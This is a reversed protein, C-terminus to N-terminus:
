LRVCTGLVRPASNYNVKWGTKPFFRWSTDPPIKMSDMPYPYIRYLSDNDPIIIPMGQDSAVKWDAGSPGGYPGGYTIYQGPLLGPGQCLAPLSDTMSFPHSHSLIQPVGPFPTLPLDWNTCPSTAPNLPSLRFIKAGLSDFIVGSRERRSNTNPSTANGSDLEMRMLLRNVPDDLLSDGVPCPVMKIPVRETQAVGNVVADVIMFGEEQIPVTCTQAIMNTCYWGLKTTDAGHYTTDAREWRWGTVRRPRGGGGHNAAMLNPLASVTFKVTQGRQIFRGKDPTVLLRTPLASIRVRQTGTQSHCPEPNCAGVTEIIAGGRIAKGVGKVLITDTWAHHQDCLPPKKYTGQTPYSITVDLGCGGGSVFSGYAWVPGNTNNVPGIHGPNAPNTYLMISDIVSIEAYVVDAFYHMAATDGPTANLLTEFTDVVVTPRLSLPVNKLHTRPATVESEDRCSFTVVAVVSLLAIRFGFARPLTVRELRAM